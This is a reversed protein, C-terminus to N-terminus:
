GGGTSGGVVRYRDTRNISQQARGNQHRQGRGLAIEFSFYDVLTAVVIM